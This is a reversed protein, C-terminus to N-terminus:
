RHRKKVIGRESFCLWVPVGEVTRELHIHKANQGQHKGTFNRETNRPAKALAERQAM